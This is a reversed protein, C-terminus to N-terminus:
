ARASLSGPGAHTWIVTRRQFQPVGVMLVPCGCARERETGLVHIPVAFDPQPVASDRRQKQQMKM